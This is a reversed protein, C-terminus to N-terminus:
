PRALDVEDNEPNRAPGFYIPHKNPSYDSENHRILNSLKEAPKKASDTSLILSISGQTQFHQYEVQM